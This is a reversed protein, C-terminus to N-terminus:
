RKERHKSLQWNKSELSEELEEIKVMAKVVKLNENLDVVRNGTPEYFDSVRSEKFSRDFMTEELSNQDKEKLTRSFCGSSSLFSDNYNEQYARSGKIVDSYKSFRKLAIENLKRDKTM